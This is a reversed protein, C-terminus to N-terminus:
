TCFGHTHNCCSRSVCHISDCLVYTTQSHKSSNVSQKLSQRRRHEQGMGDCETDLTEAVGGQGGSGAQEM